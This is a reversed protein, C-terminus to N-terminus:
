HVLMCFQLISQCVSKSSMSTGLVCLVYDVGCLKNMFEYCCANVANISFLFAEQCLLNIHLCV